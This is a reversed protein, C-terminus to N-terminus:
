KLIIKFTTEGMQLTDGHSLPEERNTQLRRGNLLSGNTSGIDKFTWGRGSQTFVGHSSSITDFAKQNNMPQIYRGFEAGSQVPFPAPLASCQLKLVPPAPVPQVPKAGDGKQQIFPNSPTAPKGSMFPNEPKAAAKPAFPNDKKVAVKPAFPSQAASNAANGNMPTGCNGCVRGAGLKGCKPCFNLKKGCLDCYQSDDPINKQCYPCQIM